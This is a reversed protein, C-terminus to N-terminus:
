IVDYSAIVIYSYIAQIILRSFLPVEVLFRPIVEAVLRNLIKLRSSLYFNAIIPTWQKDDSEEISQRYIQTDGRHEVKCYIQISLRYRVKLYQNNEVIEYKM